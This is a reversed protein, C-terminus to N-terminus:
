RKLVKGIYEKIEDDSFGATRLVICYNIHEVLRIAKVVDFSPEFERKEHALENRWKNAVDALQKYEKGYWEDLIINLSSWNEYGSYTKEIKAQLSVLPMIKKAINKAKSKEKSPLKEAFSYIIEKINEYLKLSDNSSIEPLLNRQYYEFAATIQLSQKLDILNKAKNSTHISQLSITDNIILQFLEPFHTKLTKYRVTQQITKENEIEESYKDVVNLIQVSSFTKEKDWNDINKSTVNIKRKGYLTAGNININQRNCIFTFFGRIKYYLELIFELDDTDEFKLILSSETEITCKQNNLQNTSIKLIFSINKGKFEFDFKEIEDEQLVCYNTHPNYLVANRSPIFYDLEKFCFKMQNYLTNEEYDEIYYDVNLIVNGLTVPTSESSSNMSLSASSYFPISTHFLKRKVLFNCDYGIFNHTGDEFQTPTGGCHLTLMDNDDYSYPIKQNDKSIIYGEINSMTINRRYDQTHTSDPILKLIIKSNNITFGFKEYFHNRRSIHDNDVSSLSGSIWSASTEKAYKILANMAITGNGINNDEMDIDDIHIHHSDVNQVISFLIRPINTITQYREGFLYIADATMAIFLEENQRNKDIGIIKANPFLSFIRKAIGYQKENIAMALQIKKLNARYKLDYEKSLEELEKKFIFRCIKKKM